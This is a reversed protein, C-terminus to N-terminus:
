TSERERQNKRQLMVLNHLLHFHLPVVKLARGYHLLDGDDTLDVVGVREAKKQPGRLGTEEM